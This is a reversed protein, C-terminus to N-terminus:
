IILRFVFFPWSVIQSPPFSVELSTLKQRAAYYKAQFVLVHLKSGIICRRLSQIVACFLVVLVLPSTLGRHTLEHKQGNRTSMTHNLPTLIFFVWVALRADRAEVPALPGVHYTRMRQLESPSTPAAAATPSNANANATKPSLNSLPTDPQSVSLLDSFRSPSM